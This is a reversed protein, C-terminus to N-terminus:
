RGVAVYGLGDGRATDATLDDTFEAREAHGDKEDRRIVREISCRLELFRSHLRQQRITKTRLMQLQRPRPARRSGHIAATASM